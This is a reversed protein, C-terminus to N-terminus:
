QVIVKIFRISGLNRVPIKGTRDETRYRNDRGIKSEHVRLGTKPDCLFAVPPRTGEERFGLKRYSDGESWELDAYSMIDFTGSVSNKRSLTFSDLIKGMGGVVRCGGASAYRLWEYSIRGGLERGESFVGVAVLTGTADMGAECKGTARYRFLGYRFASKLSGYLHNRDLFAAAAEPPIARVECNRAFITEQKGLHAELMRRVLPGKEIWRDQYVFLVEGFGSEDKLARRLASLFAPDGGGSFYDLSVYVVAVGTEAVTYYKLGYVSPLCQM